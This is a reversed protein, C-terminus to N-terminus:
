SRDGLFRLAQGIFWSANLNPHRQELKVYSGDPLRTYPYTGVSLYLTRPYEDAHVSACLEPLLTGEPYDGPDASISIVHQQNDVVLTHGSATRYTISDDTPMFLVDPLVFAPQRSDMTDIEASYM